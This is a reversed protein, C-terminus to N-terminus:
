RPGELLMCTFELSVVKKNDRAISGSMYYASGVEEDLKVQILLENGPEVPSRFKVNKVRSVVPTGMSHDGNKLHAQKSLFIAGCQFICEQLLVGPMIPQHPYHGRFFDKDSSVEFIGQISEDNMELVRDVFLFPDRHPIWKKIEEQDMLADPM